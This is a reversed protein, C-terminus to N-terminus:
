KFVSKLYERLNDDVAYIYTGYVGRTLLVLYQNLIHRKAVLDSDGKTRIMDRTSHKSIDIEIRKRKKDYYIDPGLIIGAYNLDYGQSTYVCGIEKLHSDDTIFSSNSFGINWKRKYKKGNCNINITAQADKASKTRISSGYEYALGSLVRCLGNFKKNKNFIDKEMQGYDDYIQVDYENKKYSVTKNSIIKNITDIYNDGCFEGEAIRLQSTLSIVEADKKFDEFSDDLADITNVQQNPDYFLVTLLRKDATIWDVQDCNKELGLKSSVIDYNKYASPGNLRNRRRLRHAEDIILIDYHKKVIENPGIVMNAKLGHKTVSFVKKVTGRFASAPVVYGIELHGKKQITEVLKSSHLIQSDEPFDQDFDKVSTNQNILDMLCKIFYIALVTKGTGAGGQVVLKKSSNSEIASETKKLLSEVCAFQDQTLQKYPSYKFIESNKIEYLTKNALKRRRLDNWIEQFLKQYMVRQYYENRVSQGGNANQLKFKEDALMYQILQNEIDLTASKNFSKNLLLLINKMVSRQPDNFHQTMRRYANNTEGVYAEKGSSLIYVVPWNQGDSSNKIKDISKEDFSYSKYRTTKPNSSNSAM